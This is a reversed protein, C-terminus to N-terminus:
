APPTRSGSGRGGPPWLTRGALLLGFRGTGGGLDLVRRRSLGDLRERLFAALHGDADEMAIMRHYAAARHSYIERFHDGM